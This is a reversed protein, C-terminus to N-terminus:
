PTLACHGFFTVAALRAARGSGAAPGWGAAALVGGVCGRQGAAAGHPQACAYQAGHEADEQDAHTGRIAHLQPLEVLGVLGGVVGIHDAVDHGNARADAARDYGNVCQFMLLHFAALQQRLKVGIIKSRPDGLRFGRYLNRPRTQAVGFQLHM